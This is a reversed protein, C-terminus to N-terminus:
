AERPWTLRTAVAAAGAGLVVGDVEGLLFGALRALWLYFCSGLLLLVWIVSAAVLLPRRRHDGSLMLEHADGHDFPDTPARADAPTPDQEFPNNM